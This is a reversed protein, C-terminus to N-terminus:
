RSQEFIDLHLAGSMGLLSAYKTRVNLSSPRPYRRLYAKKVLRGLIFFATSEQVAEPKQKANLVFFGHLV